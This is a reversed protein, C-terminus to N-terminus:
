QLYHKDKPTDMLVVYTKCVYCSINDLFVDALSQGVINLALAVM